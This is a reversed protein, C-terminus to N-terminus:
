ILPVKQPMLTISSHQMAEVVALAQLGVWGDTEPVSPMQVAEGFAEMQRTYSDFANESFDEQEIVREWGEPDILLHTSPVTYFAKRVQLGTSSFFRRVIIVSWRVSPGMKLGTLHLWM